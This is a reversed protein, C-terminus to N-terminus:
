LLSVVNFHLFPVLNLMAIVSTGIGIIFPILINRRRIWTGLWQYMDMLIPIIPRHPPAVRTNLVDWHGTAHQVRNDKWVVQGLIPIDRQHNQGTSVFLDEVLYTELPVM